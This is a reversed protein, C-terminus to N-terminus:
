NTDIEKKTMIKQLVEDMICKDNIRQLTLSIYQKTVIKINYTHMFHLLDQIWTSNAYDIRDTPYKLSRKTNGASLQYWSLISRILTVHKPYNLLKYMM